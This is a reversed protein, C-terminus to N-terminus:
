HSYVWRQNKTLSVNFHTFPLLCGETVWPLNKKSRQLTQYRIQHALSRWSMVVKLYRQATEVISLVDGISGTAPKNWWLRLRQSGRSASEWRWGEEEAGGARSSVPDQCSGRPARRGGLGGFWKWRVKSHISNIRGCIFEGTWLCMNEKPM